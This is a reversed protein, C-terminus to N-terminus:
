SHQSFHVRLFRGSKQYQDDGQRKYRRSNMPVRAVAPSHSPSVIALKRAVVNLGLGNRSMEAADDHAKIIRQTGMESVRVADAMQLSGGVLQLLSAMAVGDATVDDTAGDSM